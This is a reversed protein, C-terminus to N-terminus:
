GHGMLGGRCEKGYDVVAKLATRKRESEVKLEAVPTKLDVPITNVRVVYGWKLWSNDRTWGTEM